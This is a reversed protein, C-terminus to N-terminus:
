DVQPTEGYTLVPWKQTLVQGPPLRPDSNDRSMEDEWARTSALPEGGDDGGAVRPHYAFPRKGGGERCPYVGRGGGGWVRMVAETITRIGRVRRAAALPTESSESKAASTREASWSM